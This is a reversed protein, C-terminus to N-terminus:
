EKTNTLFLRKKMFLAVKIKIKSFLFKLPDKLEFGSNVKKQKM